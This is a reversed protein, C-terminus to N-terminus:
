YYVYCFYELNDVLINIDVMVIVIEKFMVNKKNIRIGLSSIYLM